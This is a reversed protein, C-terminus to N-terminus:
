LWQFAQNACLIERLIKSVCLSLCLKVITLHQLCLACKDCTLRQGQLIKKLPYFRGARHLTRWIRAFRKLKEATYKEVFITASQPFSTACNSDLEVHTCFNVHPPLYNFTSVRECMCHRVFYISNGKFDDNTSLYVRTSETIMRGHKMLASRKGITIVYRLDTRESECIPEKDNYYWQRALYPDSLSFIWRAYTRSCSSDSTAFLTSNKPRFSERRAFFLRNM